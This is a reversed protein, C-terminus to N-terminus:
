KIPSNLRNISLATSIFLMENRDNKLKNQIHKIAKQRESEANIYDKTNLKNEQLSIKFEKKMKKNTYKFGIERSQM